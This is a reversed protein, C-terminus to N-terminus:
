LSSEFSTKGAITADGALRAKAAADGYLAWRLFDLMTVQSAQSASGANFVPSLHDGGIITMFAKPWTTSNYVARGSAIPVTTDMDGHVFLLKTTPGSLASGLSGGSLVMGTSLRTDRASGSLEGVTTYGGASHGGAAVRYADIHGNLLDGATTDLKLVATIVATADAPQNVIDGANFQEGADGNTFPYAPAAVIFGAAAWKTTISAFSEPKASLGHSFLVLPYRGSAAAANAKPSGGASGTAPYWVLTRLPRSGRSLNLQRSGVAFSTTPAHGTGAAPPRATTTRPAPPRTTTSTTTLPDATPSASPSVTPGGSTSSTSPAAVCASPGCGALALALM